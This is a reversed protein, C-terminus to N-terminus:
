SFVMEEMCGGCILHMDKTTRAINGCTPCVYRRYNSTRGTRTIGRVTSKGGSIGGSFFGSLDDRAIQIDELSNGICFDLLQESPSTISWGIRSDYGICLGRKTAENKFRSNHYTGNRSTDKIGHIFCYEHCMEHLLTAVVNEIPRDLTGAGINIEKFGSDDLNNHWADYTTFHGYAKPTSQITIVVKPLESGFYEKNLLNFVKDLYGTVRKYNTLQKM